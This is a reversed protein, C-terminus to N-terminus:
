IQCAFREDFNRRSQEKSQCFRRCGEPKGVFIRKVRPSSPRVEVLAMECGDRSRYGDMFGSRLEVATVCSEGNGDDCDRMAPM